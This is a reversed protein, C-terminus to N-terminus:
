KFLDKNNSQDVAGYIKPTKSKNFDSSAWRKLRLSTDWTKQTEQKFKTKSKNPETWYDCFDRIMEKGYLGVFPVLSKSFKLKRDDISNVEKVTVTDTVTVAINAISKPRVEDPQSVKRDEAISLAQNLDMKKDIVLVYLDLHWRKLNGLIGSESKKTKEQEWKVLDRKLQNKISKFMLNTIKDDTVPNKDRVYDCFHKILRGAEAEDLDDFIDGWDVYWLVCNKGEAM